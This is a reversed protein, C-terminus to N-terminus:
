DIIRGVGAQDCCENGKKIACSKVDQSEGSKLCMVHKSFEVKAYFKFFGSYVDPISLSVPEKRPDLKSFSCDWKEIVCTKLDKDRTRLEDVSHLAGTQYLYFLVMMCVAYNNLLPSAAKSSGSLFLCRQM